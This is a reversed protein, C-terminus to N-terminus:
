LTSHVRVSFDANNMGSADQVSILIRDNGKAGKGFNDDQFNFSKETFGVCTYASENFIETGGLILVFTGYLYTVDHVINVLYFANM